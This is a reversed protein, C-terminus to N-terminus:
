NNKNLNSKFLFKLNDTVDVKEIYADTQTYQIIQQIELMKKSCNKCSNNILDLQKLVNNINCLIVESNSYKTFNLKSLYDIIKFKMEITINPSQLQILYNNLINNEIINSM